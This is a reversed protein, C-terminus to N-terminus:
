EPRSHLRVRRVTRRAHPVWGRLHWRACMALGRVWEDAAYAVWIGALGWGLRVGLLWSLGVAVAFMSFVGFGVPFRADGSARLGNIVVMNITRGPEVLLTLWLLRSGTAIVEPDRTFLGLLRPGLLAATLVVTVCVCLGVALGGRVQRDAGHLEGAGIHHGVVIETGFGVALGFLLLFHVIQMTYTHTALATQGMDAVMALIIMFSIRYVVNEGAGPLGIHLMERLRDPRIRWFDDFSPRIGLRSVWLQAHMWFSLARAIVAALALGNMGLGEWGGVGFMLPLSLALQVIYMIVILRLTDRTHTHARLVSGLSFNVADFALMVGVAILYPQAIPFLSPPLRMLELLPRAGIAIIACSFIGMWVNAALSARAVHEAGVRDRAGLYQTVVVSAGVSVFRFTIMFTLMIQNSLGYAAAAEDSLRSVLWVGFVGVLMHLLHESFIPWTIDLLRPRPLSRAPIVSELAGCGVGGRATEGRRFM